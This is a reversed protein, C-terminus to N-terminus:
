FTNVRRSELGTKVCTKSGKKKKENYLSTRGKTLCKKFAFGHNGVSFQQKPKFSRFRDKLILTQKKKKLLKVRSNKYNKKKLCKIKLQCQLSFFLFFTEM